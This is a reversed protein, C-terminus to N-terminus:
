TPREGFIATGIRLLTSGEQIAIRFDNTMGMSLTDFMLEPYREQVRVFLNRLRRFSTRVPLEEKTFPAMTMLGRIRLRSLQNIADLSRFLDDQDRFGGKSEEESTNVELLIDINKGETDLSRALAEATELRDISQVCRFLSAAIRTKNRQLHGILHLDVPGSLVSYKDRAEQVRNEGFCTVGADIAAQVSAAPHFKTVAMLTITGPDRGAATACESIEERIRHIRDAISEKM